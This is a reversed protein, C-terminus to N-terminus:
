LSGSPPEVDLVFQPTADETIFWLRCASGSLAVYVFGPRALAFLSHPGYATSRVGGGAGSVVCLFSDDPHKLLQLDHEHGCFYAVVGYRDFLPKLLKLLAENEGYAGASRLQHHGWVFKWRGPFSRLTQELWGLQRRGARPNTLLEQTDLAVFLVPTGDPLTQTVSYYREPMRWRSSRRSYAIQAEPRGRYDHNGLVAYWPVQLSSDSYIREYKTSWQPDDAALVGSPYINDGTSLIFHIPARRAIAAMARAVRRQTVSGTGWDGIVIWRLTSDAAEPAAITSEVRYPPKGYVTASGPAVEAQVLWLKSWHSAVAVAFALLWVM